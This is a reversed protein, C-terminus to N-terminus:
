SPAGAAIRSASRAAPLGALIGALFTGALVLAIGVAPVQLPMGRGFSEAGIAGLAVAAAGGGACLGLACALAAVVAAECLIMLMVFRRSAGLYRLIAIEARRELVLASLTASLAALAIALTVFALENAVSLSRALLAIAALRLERTTQIGLRLPALARAIASRVDHPAATARVNIQITDPRDDGFWRASSAFPVIAAGGSREFDDPIGAVRLMVNGAPTAITLRDGIRVHMRRALPQTVFAPTERAYPVPSPASHPAAADDGRLELTGKGLAVVDFSRAPTATAVGAVLRVRALATAPLADSAADGLHAASIVLDGPLAATAWALTAAGFSATAIAYGIANAAALGLAALVIATRQRTAHLQIAALWAAPASRESASRLLDSAFAILASLGAFGFRASRYTMQPNAALGLASAPPTRMADLAPILACLAAVFVGTALAFAITPLMADGAAASATTALGNALAPLAREAAFAGALAGLLSGFAGYLVGEALFAALITRRSAGLSRVIAIERRRLRVSTGVADYVLLAALALTSLALWAFNRQLGAALRAIGSAPAHPREVRAGPPLLGAIRASAAAVDGEVTCDIRDLFGVRDFMTQATVIDVFVSGSDFGAAGQPIIQAVTLTTRRGLALAEFRSGVRLGNQGALQAPVIAGGGQLVLAPDITTGRAAFPGPLGESLSPGGIPQLLDVGVIRVTDGLAADNPRAGVSADGQLIPRADAIQPLSRIRAFLREDLGRGSQLIQLDAHLGLEANAGLAAASGAGTLHTAVLLATGFAVAALAVAARLPDKRVGGEVLVYFVSGV